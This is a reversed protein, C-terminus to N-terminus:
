DLPQQFTVVAVDLGHQEGSRIALAGAPNAPCLAPQLTLPALRLAPTFARRRRGTLPAPNAAVSAADCVM